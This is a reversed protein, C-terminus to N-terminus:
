ELTPNRFLQTNYICTYMYKCTQWITKELVFDVKQLKGLYEGNAFSVYM